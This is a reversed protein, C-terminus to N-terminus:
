IVAIWSSLLEIKLISTSTNLKPTAMGEELGKPCLCIQRMLSVINFCVALIFLLAYLRRKRRFYNIVTSSTVQWSLISDTAIQTFSTPNM